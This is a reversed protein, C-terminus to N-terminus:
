NELHQCGASRQGTGLHRVAQMRCTSELLPTNKAFNHPLDTSHPCSVQWFSGGQRRKKYIAYLAWGPLQILGLTAL